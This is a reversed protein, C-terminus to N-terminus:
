KRCEKVMAALALWAAQLQEFPARKRLLADVERKSLDMCRANARDTITARSKVTDFDLIIRTRNM